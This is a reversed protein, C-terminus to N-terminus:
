RLFKCKYYIEFFFYKRAKKHLFVNHSEFWAGFFLSCVSVLCTRVKLLNLYKLSYWWPPMEPTQDGLYVLKTEVFQDRREVFSSHFDKVVLWFSGQSTCHCGIKNSASSVFNAVSDSLIFCLLLNGSEFIDGNIKGLM